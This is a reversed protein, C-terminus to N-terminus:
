KEGRLVRGNPLSIVAGSSVVPEATLKGGMAEVHIGAGTHAELRPVDGLFRGVFMSGSMAWVAKRFTGRLEIDNCTFTSAKQLAIACDNDGEIVVRADEALIHGDHEPGIPTNEARKARLTTTTGHLDVRGGCNVALNNSQTAWSTIRASACGLRIVGYYSASLSGNGMDLSAGERQEFKVSGHDTAVIGCFTEDPAEDHLHENLRIAGRLLVRGGRHVWIGADSQSRTRFTVDRLSLEAPGAVMVGRRQDTRGAGIQVGEIRWDGERVDVLAPGGAWGFVPLAGDGGPKGAITVSAGAKMRRALALSGEPMGRGGTTEHAGAVEISVAEEVPDPVLALAASVSRLPRRASGDNGKDNGREADVHIPSAAKRQASPQAVVGVVALVTLPVLGRVTV